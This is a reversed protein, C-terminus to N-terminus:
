FYSLSVVGTGLKPLIDALSSLVLLLLLVDSYFLLDIVLARVKESDLLTMKM